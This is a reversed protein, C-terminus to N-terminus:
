LSCFASRGLAVGSKLPVSDVGIAAAMQGANASQGVSVGSQASASESDLGISVANTTAQANPGVAVSNINASASNGIAIGLATSNSNSGINVNSADILKSSPTYLELKTDFSSELNTLKTDVSSQVDTDGPEYADVIKKFTNLNEDSGNLIVNVSQSAGEYALLRDTSLNNQSLEGDRVTHVNSIVGSDSILIGDGATFAGTYDGPTTTYVTNVTPM